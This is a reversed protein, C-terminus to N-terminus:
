SQQLKAGVPQMLGVLVLNARSSWCFSYIPVHLSHEVLMQTPCYCKQRHHRWSSSFFGDVERICPLHIVDPLFPVGRTVTKSVSAPPSYNSIETLELPCYPEVSIEPSLGGDDFSPTISYFSAQSRGRLLLNSEQGAQGVSNKKTKRWQSKQPFCGNMGECCCSM